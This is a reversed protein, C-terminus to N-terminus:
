HTPTEGQQHEAQDITPSLERPFATQQPTHVPLQSDTVADPTAGQSDAVRKMLHDVHRRVIQGHALQM